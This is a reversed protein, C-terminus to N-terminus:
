SLVRVDRSRASSRSAGTRKKGRSPVGKRKKGWNELLPVRRDWLKLGVRQKIPKSPGGHVGEEQAQDELSGKKREEPLMPLDSKKKDASQPKLFLRGQFARLREKEIIGGDGKM